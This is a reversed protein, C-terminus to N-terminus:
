EANCFATETQVVCANISETFMKKMSLLFLTPSINVHNLNEAKHENCCWCRPVGLMVMVM